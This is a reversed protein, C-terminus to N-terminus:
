PDLDRGTSVVLKEKISQFPNEGLIVCDERDQRIRQCSAHHDAAPTIEIQRVQVVREKPQIERLSRWCADGSLSDRLDVRAYAPQRTAIHVQGRHHHLQEHGQNRALKPGLEKFPADLRGQAGNNNRGLAANGLLGSRRKSRSSCRTSVPVSVCM